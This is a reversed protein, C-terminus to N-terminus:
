RVEKVASLVIWERGPKAPLGGAADCCITPVERGLGVRVEFARDPLVVAVLYAGDEDAMVDVSRGCTDLDFGLEAFVAREAIQAPGTPAGWWGRSSAAFERGDGQRQVIDGLTKPTLYAWMRGDPLTMATPAFRHGGTHSVRFIEADLGTDAWRALEVGHTGCCIDHSGQVCILVTRRADDAAVFDGSRDGLLARLDEDPRDGIIVESRLMGGDAPRLAVFRPSVGPQPVAALLRVQERHQAAVGVLPALDAHKGVPKPWPESLEVLVIVDPALATGGPDVAHQQSYDSCFVSEDMGPLAVSWEVM